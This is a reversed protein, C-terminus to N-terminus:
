RETSEVQLLFNDCLALASLNSARVIYVLQLALTRLKLQKVAAVDKEDLGAFLYELKLCLQLLHAISNRVPNAQLSTTNNSYCRNDALLKGLQLQSAIYLSLFHALGAVTADIDSLTALHRGAAELLTASVRPSPAAAVRSLISDLFRLSSTPVPALETAHAGCYKLHPVLQPITSRLYSYHQVTVDEFLQVMTPCHQAANFVLILVSLYAPDEVDPEPMDFFPHISLLEPVLPLTLEPHLAGIKQLCHWTSKKDQPYRKLNDLLREVCMKLCGKTSLRCAAMMSHLGERVDMSFDELACLITELQDERLVIHRSIKTLAHIAKLRVDEIEDNFMDVLFDLAMNAFHTNNLSLSCLADLTASRVELFEDELGHVFAGCAGSHILNVQDADVAEGRPADDAWKKGSAWEGSTVNEWAREHASRKKRLNSILKKDLTQQLFKDSVLLMSGLLQASLTRVLMSLDGVGSCIKSFASDVLRISDEGGGNGSGGGGSSDQHVDVMTEPYTQGLLWVLKLAAKRVVEYDDKLSACTQNYISVDVKIGREHLAI